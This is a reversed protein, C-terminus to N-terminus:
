QWIGAVPPSPKAVIGGPRSHSAPATLGRTPAFETASSVGREGNSWLKGWVESTGVSKPLQRVACASRRARPRNRKEEAPPAM